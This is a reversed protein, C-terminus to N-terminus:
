IQHNLKALVVARITYLDDLQGNLLMENLRADDALLYEGIAETGDTNLCNGTCKASFYIMPENDNNLQHLEIVSLGTEEAIEKLANEAASLGAEGFGRPCEWHWHRDDHRYHKMLLISGDVTLLVVVDKGSLELQSNRNIKRLYRGYTGDPFRVLDRLVLVWQDQAVIGLDYWARPLGSQDAEMYLQDQKEYLAERDAIIELQGDANNLLHPYKQLLALYADIGLAEM